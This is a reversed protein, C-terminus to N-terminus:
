STLTYTEYFHSMSNKFNLNVSMVYNLFNKLGSHILLKIYFYELM